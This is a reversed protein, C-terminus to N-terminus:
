LLRDKDEHVNEQKLEREYEEVLMANESWSAAFANGGVGRMVSASQGSGVLACKRLDCGKLYASVFGACFADGAGTTDVPVGKYLSPVMYEQDKFDTVYVGKEGLKVGFCSFPFRSFFGVIEKLEDSGAYMRAEEYSPIFIDLHEVVDRLVKEWTGNEDYCADMSTTLGLSHARAFLEGMPKGDLLPFLNASAVHIHRHRSLLADPIMERCLHRNGTDPIRIIHRDGMEDVLLVPASTNWNESAVVASVDVGEKELSHLLLEGVFDKGICSVLTVDMGLRAFSVAANVADGGSGVYHGISKQGDIKMIDGRIGTLLTDWTAAGICLVDRMTGSKSLRLNDPNYCFDHLLGRAAKSYVLGEGDLFMIQREHREKGSLIDEVLSMEDEMYSYTLQVMSQNRHGPYIRLSKMEKTMEMLRSLQGKFEEMSLSHKLQLWFGGSGISDGSFMRQNDEDIFVVSGPTHGHCFVCKLVTNGLDFQQGDTLAVYPFDMGFENMLGADREDMYVPVGQEVFAAVSKGAHDPHAHTLLLTLPLNTVRRVREYVDVAHELADVVVASTEGVILYADVSGSENLQYVNEAIKGVSCKM